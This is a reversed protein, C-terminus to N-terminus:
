PNRSSMTLGASANKSPADKAGCCDNPCGPTLQVKLTSPRSSSYPGVNEAKWISTGGYVVADPREGMQILFDRVWKGKREALAEDPKAEDQYAILLFFPRNPYKRQM